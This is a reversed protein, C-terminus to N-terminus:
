AEGVEVGSVVSRIMKEWIRRVVRFGEIWEDYDEVVDCELWKGDRAGVCEMYEIGLHKISLNGHVGKDKDGNKATEGEKSGNMDKAEEEREGGEDMKKEKEEEEEM